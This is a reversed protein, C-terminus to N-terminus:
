HFSAELKQKGVQTNAGGMEGQRVVIKRGLIEILYLKEVVCGVQLIENAQVVCVHVLFRQFGKFTTHISAM